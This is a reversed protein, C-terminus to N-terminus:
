WCPTRAMARASNKDGLAKSANYVKKAHCMEQRTVGILEHLSVATSGKRPRGPRRFAIRGAKAEDMYYSLLQTKEDDTLPEPKTITKMPFLKGKLTKMRAPDLCALVALLTELESDIMEQIKLDNPV